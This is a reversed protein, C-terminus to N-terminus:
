TGWPTTVAVVHGTGFVKFEWRRTSGTVPRLALAMDATVVQTPIQADALIMRLSSLAPSIDGAGVDLPSVQDMRRKGQEAVRQFSVPDLLLASVGMGRGRLRAMASIWGTDLSPTIAMVSIGVPLARGAQDLVRALPNAEVAHVRALASLLKFLHGRGRAPPVMTRRQGHALLGVARGADLLHAAVSAALIVAHEETSTEGQGVHVDHDLDLALWVDGGSEQDFEKIFLSDRRATTPWHVHRRPDGPVYSRV